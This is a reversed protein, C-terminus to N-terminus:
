DQVVTVTRNQSNAVYIRGSAPNVRVGYPATGVPVTGVITNTAGDIIALANQASNSAYVTNTATNVGLYTPSGGSITGVVTNTSGDIVSISGGSQNAVYVRNTTPNVALGTPGNGVPITAVVSNSSGDIVSVSNALFNAVYIRNTTPNVEIDRPGAGVDIAAVSANDVGNLVLVKNTKQASVYVRNTSPNVGVGLPEVNLGLNVTASVTNSSGDIVTLGDTDKNATYVRNTTPNVALDVPALISGITGVNTNTTTDIVSVNNSATNAVYARNTQPNVDVGYSGLGVQVTAVVTGRPTPTATPSAPGPTRTPTATATPSQGNLGQALQDNIQDGQQGNQQAGNPDTLDKANNELNKTVDPPLTTQTSGQGSAGAAQGPQNLNIPPQNNKPNVDVNGVKGDPDTLLVTSTVIEAPCDAASNVNPIDGPLQPAGPALTLFQYPPTSGTLRCVNTNAQARPAARSILAATQDGESPAGPDAPPAADAPPDISSGTWYVVGNATIGWHEFGNTFTPTNTSKRYFALGNTTNQLTDGTGNPDGYECTTADGMVSGLLDHLALFGFAYDPTVGPACFNSSGAPQTTPTPTSPPATYAHKVTVVYTTGRVLAVSSPTDTQFSGSGQPQIRNVTTGSAQFISVGSANSSANIQV